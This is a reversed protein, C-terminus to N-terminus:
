VVHKWIKNNCVESIISHDVDYFRGLERCGLGEKRLRRIERVKLHDLKANKHELGRVPRRHEDPIRYHTGADIADRVNEKQTGVYLHNPNVCNKNNCKHLINLGEPINGYNIIWSVRHALWARGDIKFGGYGGGRAGSQWEWCGDQKKVKEWFREVVDNNFM